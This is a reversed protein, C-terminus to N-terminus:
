SQVERLLATLWAEAESEEGQLLELLQELRIAADSTPLMFTPTLEEPDDEWRMVLEGEMALEIFGAYALTISAWDLMRRLQEVDVVGMGLVMSMVLMKMQPDSLMHQKVKMQEKSM